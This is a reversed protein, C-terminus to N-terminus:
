AFPARRVAAIPEIVEHRVGEVFRQAEVKGELYKAAVDPRFPNIRPDFRQSM